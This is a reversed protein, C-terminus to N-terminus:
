RNRTLTSFCARLIPDNTTYLYLLSLTCYIGVGIIVQIGLATISTSMKVGLTFVIVFMAAGFALFPFSQRVIAGLPLQKRSSICQILCVTIEAAITAIAAGVAGSQPILFYNIALNVVAGLSVSVVFDLDRENPILYQTRIINAFSIFPITISLLIILSGCIKFENGWYIPAFTQATAAFGFSLAYSLWMIYKSSLKTYKIAKDNESTAIMNSIRPIMVTGFSSIITLPLTTVKEANEYFGLQIKSSMVGIMIKDMYKYLSVAITPLFLIFLPKIHSAMISISPKAFSVYKKLPIWLAVQNILVSLSMILLYIWIDERSKICIFLAIFSVLKVTLGVTVTLRFEELGIYLWSIDFLSSIVQFLMIVAYFRSSYDCQSLIFIIYFVICILSSILQIAYLNSFSINIRQHDNKCKAITRSGHNRIGLAAILTFYYAVSYYFSYTGLGEAGIVRSIYPSAILPLIMSLVDASVQYIVNKKITNSTKM